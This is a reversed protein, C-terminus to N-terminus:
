FTTLFTGIKGGKDSNPCQYKYNNHPASILNHYILISDSVLKTKLFTVYLITNMAKQIYPRLKEESHLTFPGLDPPFTPM